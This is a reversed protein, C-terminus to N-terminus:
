PNHREPNEEDEFWREPNLVIYERIRDYAEQTRIITEHYGRQWLPQGRQDLAQNVRKTVASKYSGVATALTGRVSQGFQREQITSVPDPGIFLIGHVHNPMVVFVDTQVYPLHKSLQFWCDEAIKGLQSLQIVVNDIRGFLLRKQEVCITVFYCGNGYEAGQLRISRRHHKEPDYSM